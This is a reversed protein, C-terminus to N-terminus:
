EVEAWFLPSDNMQKIHCLELVGVYDILEPTTTMLMCKFNLNGSSSCSGRRTKQHRITIRGYTVGFIPE